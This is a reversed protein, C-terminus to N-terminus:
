LFGLGKQIWNNSNKNSISLTLAKEGILTNCFWLEKKKKKKIRTHNSALKAPMYLYWDVCEGEWGGGFEVIFNPFEKTLCLVCLHTGQPFPTSFCFSFGKIEGDFTRAFGGWGGALGTVPAVCKKASFWALGVCKYLKIHEMQQCTKLPIIISNSM